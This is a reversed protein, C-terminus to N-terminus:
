GGRNFDILSPETLFKRVNLIYYLKNDVRLGAAFISRNLLNQNLINLPETDIEARSVTGVIRDLRIGIKQKRYQVVVFRNGESEGPNGMKLFGAFDIVSIIESRINVIGQIWVPLNPLFTIAPLPGVESLDDIAIALHFPDTSVLIYKTLKEQDPVSRQSVSVSSRMVEALQTDISQILTNLDPLSSM